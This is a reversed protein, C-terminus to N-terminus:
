TDENPLLFHCAVMGVRGTVVIFREAVAAPTLAYVYPMTLAKSSSPGLSSYGALIWLQSKGYARKQGLSYTNHMPPISQEVM